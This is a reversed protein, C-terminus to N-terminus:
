TFVASVRFVYTEFDEMSESLYIYGMPHDEEFLRIFYTNADIKHNINGLKISYVTNPDEVLNLWSAVIKMSNYNIQKMYILSNILRSMKNIPMFNQPALNYISM